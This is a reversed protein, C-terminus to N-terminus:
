WDKAGQLAQEERECSNKFGGLEEEKAKANTLKEGQFSTEEYRWM